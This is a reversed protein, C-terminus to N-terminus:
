HDARGRHWRIYLFAGAGLIVGLFDAVWDLFDRDRGFLPLGQLIEILAGVALLFGILRLSHKKWGLSGAIGLFAFASAHNLKDNGLGVHLNLDGVGAPLLALTLTLFLMLLFLLRFFKEHPRLLAIGMIIFTDLLISGIRM